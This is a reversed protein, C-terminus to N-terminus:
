RINEFIVGCLLSALAAKSLMFSTKYNLLLRSQLDEFTEQDAASSRLVECSSLIGSVM